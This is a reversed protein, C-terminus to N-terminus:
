ATDSQEIKFGLIHEVAHIPVRALKKSQYYDYGSQVMYHKARRIIDSSFSSGYGLSMIDSKTLTNKM